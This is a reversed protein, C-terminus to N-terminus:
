DLLMGEWVNADDALKSRRAGRGDGATQSAEPSTAIQAVLDPHAEIVKLLLRTPGDPLRRGQEWQQVTRPSLCFREAFLEQSLGLRERLARIDPGPPAVVRAPGWETPEDDELAWRKFDDATPETLKEADMRGRYKRVEENTMSVTKDGSSAQKTSVIRM